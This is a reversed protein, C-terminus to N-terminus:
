CPHGISLPSAVSVNAEMAPGQLTILLDVVVAASALGGNSPGVLNTVRMVGIHGKFWTLFGLETLGMTMDGYTAQLIFTPGKRVSSEAITGDGTLCIVGLPGDFSRMDTLTAQANTMTVWKHPAARLLEMEDDGREEQRPPTRLSAVTGMANGGELKIAAM